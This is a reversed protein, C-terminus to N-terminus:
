HKSGVMLGHFAAQAAEKSAAPKQAAESAMTIEYAAAIAHALKMGVDLNLVTIKAPVADASSVIMHGIARTMVDMAVAMKARDPNEPDIGADKQIFDWLRGALRCTECERNDCM